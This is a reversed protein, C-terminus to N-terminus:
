PTAMSRLSTNLVALMEAYAAEQETFRRLYEEKTLKQDKWGGNFMTQERGDRWVIDFRQGDEADTKLGDAGSDIIFLRGEREGAAHLDMYIQQFDNSLIRERLLSPAAYHARIVLLQSGPIHMAAVFRRDDLPDAAAITALKRENMLRILEAGQQHSTRATGGQLALTAAGLALIAVAFVM